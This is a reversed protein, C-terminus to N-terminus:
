GHGSFLSAGRALGLPLVLTNHKYVYINLLCNLLMDSLLVTTTPEDRSGIAGLKHVKSWNLLVLGSNRGTSYAESRRWFSTTVGGVKM